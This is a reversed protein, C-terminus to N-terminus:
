VKEIETATMLSLDKKEYDGESLGDQLSEDARSESQQDQALNDYKAGSRLDSATESANMLSM